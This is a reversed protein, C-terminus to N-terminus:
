YSKVIKIKLKSNHSQVKSLKNNEDILYVAILKDKVKILEGYGFLDSTEGNLIYKLYVRVDSIFELSKVNYWFCEPIDFYDEYSNVINVADRMPISLNSSSTNQYLIIGSIINVSAQPIYELPSIVKKNSYIDETISLNDVSRCFNMGHNYIDTKLIIYDAYKFAYSVLGNLTFLKILRDANYKGGLVCYAILEINNSKCFKIDEIPTYLPNIELENYKPYYGYHQNFKELDERTFNSVGIEKIYGLDKYRILSDVLPIWNCRNNHVLMLDIFNRGLESLHGNFFLDFDFNMQPAIKSLVKLNSEEILKRIGIANDYSIATDIWSIEFENLLKNYASYTDANFEWSGLIINM